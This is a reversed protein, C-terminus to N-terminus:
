RLRGAAHQAQVRAVRQAYEENDLIGAEHLVRLSELRSECSDMHISHLQEADDQQRKAARWQPDSRLEARRQASIQGIPAAARAREPAPPAGDGHKAAKSARGAVNIVAIVIFILAFLGEM